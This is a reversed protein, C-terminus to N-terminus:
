NATERADDPRPYFTSLLMEKVCTVPSDLDEKARDGAVTRLLRAYAGHPFVGRVTSSRLAQM